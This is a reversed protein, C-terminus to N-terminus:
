KDGDPRRTQVPRAADSLPGSRTPAPGTNLLVAAPPQAAPAAAPADPAWDAKNASVMESAFAVSVELQEGVKTPSGQHLFPRKVVIRRRNTGARAQAAGAVIPVDKTTLTM